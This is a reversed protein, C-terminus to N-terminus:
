LSLNQKISMEKSLFKEMLIGTVYFFALGFSVHIITFMAGLSASEYIVIPLKAVTWVGLFFVVNRLLAGKKLLIAAIPFAVYLPGAAIGGLLLAIMPGRFGSDKGAYKLIMEKPVWTDLLGVLILIPPLLLLMDIISNGTITLATWGTENNVLYIVMWIFALIIFMRYKKVSKM